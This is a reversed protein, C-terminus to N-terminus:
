QAAHGPPHAPGRGPHHRGDRSGLRLARCTGLVHLRDAAASLRARRGLRGPGPARGGPGAAGRGTGPRPAGRPRARGTGRRRRHRGPATRDACRLDHFRRRRARLALRVPVATRRRVAPLPAHDRHREAPGGPCRAPLRRRRPLPPRRAAAVLPPVATRAAGVPRRAATARAHPLASLGRRRPRRGCQDGGDFRRDAAGDAARGDPTRGRREWDDARGRGHATGRAVCCSHAVLVGARVRAAWIYM